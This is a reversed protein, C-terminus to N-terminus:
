PSIGANREAGHRQAVAPEHAEATPQGAAPQTASAQEQEAQTDMLQESTLQDTGRAPGAPTPTSPAPAAAGPVAGASPAPAAASPAAGAVAAGPVAVGLAAPPAIAPASVAAKPTGVVSVAGDPQAVLRAADSVQVMGLGQAEQALAPPAQMAAIQTRLMESRESLDRTASRASDLRYSDAAATTSLWLSTVLGVGLLVMILLVFQSRGAVGEAPAGGMRQQRGTRKAYARGVAGASDRPSPAGGPDRTPRRAPQRSARAREITPASM